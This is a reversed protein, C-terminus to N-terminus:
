SLNMSDILRFNMFFPIVLSRGCKFNIVARDLKQSDSSCKGGTLHLWIEDNLETINLSEALTGINDAHGNTYRCVSSQDGCNDDKVKDCVNIKYTFNTSGDSWRTDWDTSFVSSLHNM